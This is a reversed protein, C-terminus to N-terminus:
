QYHWDTGTPTDKIIIGNTALEDRIRDATAYDKNTKAIRREALKAEITPADLNQISAQGKLYDSPNQQLIGLRTGLIKLTYVANADNKNAQRALDFLVALAKPTNLDDNMANNYETIAETLLTNGLPKGALATYLRTLAKKAEDLGADSYNLPGRYHSQLIFFRITEGDYKKLVDRVTFFNGLSKSMKENNIQVFGNHIWYNVHQHGCAGESQAIECEHHPFKLDMGGGHIDFHEGLANASMVSCEIHWGPRGNGWPSQWSPEQPKASKWLVFDLPDEKDTNVAIREGARLDNIDRNALKGYSPFSRVRYYVDGNDAPYAHGREILTQILRIMGDVHETAKPEQDPRQCGLTAEDEHMATIFRTTLAHIPEGNENARNIIKDDIDTINRVYTLHYTERLHRALTDFVVMVRAHGIHCYDYVTMGCVYMSIHGAKLPRFIEKKRTLSNYLRLDDM